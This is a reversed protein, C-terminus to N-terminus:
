GKKGFSIEEKLVMHLFFNQLASLHQLQMQTDTMHGDTPLKQLAAKLPTGVRFACRGSCAWANIKGALWFSAIYSLYKTLTFYVKDEAM